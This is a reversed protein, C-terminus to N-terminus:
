LGLDQGIVRDLHQGRVKEKFVPSETIQYLKYWGDNALRLSKLREMPQSLIAGALWVDRNGLFLGPLKDPIEGIMSELAQEISDFAQSKYTAYSRAVLHGDPDLAKLLLATSKHPDNLEWKMDDNDDFSLKRDLHQAIAEEDLGRFLRIGEHAEDLTAKKAEMPSNGLAISTCLHDIYGLIEEPTIQGGNLARRVPSAIPSNKFTPYSKLFKLTEQFHEKDPSAQIADVMVVFRDVNELMAETIESRFSHEHFTMYAPVNFRFGGKDDILSPPVIAPNDRCIEKAMNNCFFGSLQELPGNLFLPSERQMDAHSFELNASFNDSNRSMSWLMLIGFDQATTMGSDKPQLEFVTALQEATVKSAHVIDMAEVAIEGRKPHDIGLDAVAKLREMLRVTQAANM